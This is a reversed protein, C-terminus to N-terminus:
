TNESKKGGMVMLVRKTDKDLKVRDDCSFGVLLIIGERDCVIPLASRDALPVANENFFKKLSKGVGGVPHFRDGEKRGRILMSGIIKDYDCSFKLVNKHVNQKEKFEEIPFCVATYTKDGVTVTDGICLPQEFYPVTERPTDIMLHTASVTVRIEGPIQVAGGNRLADVLLMIHKEEPDGGATEALQKLARKLLPLPTELLVTRLYGDGDIADHLAKAALEELFANEEKLQATMRTCADVVQPNIAKLQPIVEARIRNRSYVTDANTSDVVFPIGKAACYAEIEDRSVGLLPRLIHRGTAPIGCLGRLGSGRTLHLLVTELNDDAHHATAICDLGYQERVREFFAYRIRRGAQEIGEGTQREEAVHAFLTECPIHLEECQARVFAADRDAEEGRLGHHVHAAALRLGQTERLASLTYLLAMSDAGGSLAIVIGLNQPLLRAINTEFEM